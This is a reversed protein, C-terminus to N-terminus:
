SPLLILSLVRADAFRVVLLMAVAAIVTSVLTLEVNDLWSLEWLRGCRVAGGSFEVAAAL